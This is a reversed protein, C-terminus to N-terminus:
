RSQYRFSRVNSKAQRRCTRDSCMPIAYCNATVCYSTGYVAERGLPGTAGDNYCIYKYDKNPNSYDCIISYQTILYNKLFIM